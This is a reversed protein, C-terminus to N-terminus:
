YWGLEARLHPILEDAMLHEHHWKGPHGPDRQRDFLLWGYRGDGARNLEEIASKIIGATYPSEPGPKKTPTMTGLVGLIYADPYQKRLELLFIKYQTKIWEDSPRNTNAWYHEYWYWGDNTLLHVVVVDPQWRHFDWEPEQAFPVTRRYFTDMQPNGPSFKATLAIGSYAICAFEADLARATLASYALYNNPRAKSDDEKRGKEAHNGATISDGYFEITRGSLSQPPLVGCGEALQIGLFRAESEEWIETLRHLKLEHWGPDLDRAVPYDHEGPQLELRVPDRDNGDVIAYFVANTDTCRFRVAADPGRFRVDASQGPWTMNPPVSIGEGELLRGQYRFAPNTSAVFGSGSEKAVRLLVPREGAVNGKRSFVTVRGTFVGEVASQLERQATWKRGERSLPIPDDSMGPIGSLDVSVQKVTAGCRGYATIGFRIEAPEDPVISSPVAEAWGIRLEPRFCSGGWLIIGVVLITFLFRVFRM